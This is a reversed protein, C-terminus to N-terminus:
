TQGEALSYMLRYPKLVVDELAEHRSRGDPGLLATQAADIASSQTGEVLLLWRAGVEHGRGTNRGETTSDKASTTEPDAEGLACGTIAPEDLLGPLTRQVLSSLLEDAADPQLGFEVIAMWGGIGGGFSAQIEYAARNSNSFLPTMKGTWPTPNDLRELYPASSLTALSETEYLTFYKQVTPSDTTKVYRRGRLFGPVGVREPLHENTYWDNFEAEHAPEINSWFALIAQGLLAGPGHPQASSSLKHSV